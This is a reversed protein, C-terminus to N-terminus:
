VTGNKHAYMSSDQCHDLEWTEGTLIPIFNDVEEVKSKFGCVGWSM